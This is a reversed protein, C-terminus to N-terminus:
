HYISTARRVEYEPFSAAIKEECAEITLKRTDAYSTGFSVVLIGKKDDPEKVSEHSEETNQDGEVENNEDVQQSNNGCAVLLCCILLSIIILALHKNKRFVM